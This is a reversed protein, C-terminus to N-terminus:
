YHMSRITYCIAGKGMYASFFILRYLQEHGLWSPMLPLLSLAGNM